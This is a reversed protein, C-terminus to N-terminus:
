EYYSTILIAYGEEALERAVSYADRYDRFKGIRVRYFRKGRVIASTIYVDVYKFELGRKLREANEKNRFSGVQITLIGSLSARKIIGPVRKVYRMDRGIYEIKVIGVGKEVLGIARAAGYSLDLDRGEVFPGRDNVTVIVSRGNEPNTVRLKTGFPMTRHACTLDYMNFIEGSATPRGHFKPGYWSAVVYEGGPPPLYAKKSIGACSFLTLCLIIGVVYHLRYRSYFRKRMVYPLPNFLGAM